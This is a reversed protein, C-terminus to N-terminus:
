TVTLEQGCNIDSSKEASRLSMVISSFVRDRGMLKHYLVLSVLMFDNSLIAM